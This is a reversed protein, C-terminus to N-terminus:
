LERIRINRVEIRDGHGLFGIHGKTRKLGPHDQGDMTGSKTAEDLDADVITVTNLVVKIRRGQVTVEQYNWEGAAKLSGRKAPVIGYVSGHYQYPKLTAFKEAADDLIQLEIGDLHLNGEPLFPCRVGLGNNAGPTLRVEFRLIFDQYEKETLLNGKAGLICVLNGEEVRYADSGKWGKLTKGDFLSVFGEEVLTTNEDAQAVNMGVVAALLLFRTFM